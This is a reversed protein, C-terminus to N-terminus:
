PAIMRLRNSLLDPNLDPRVTAASEVTLAAAALGRRLALGLPEGIVLGSLTAAALADGAGNVNVVQAYPAPVTSFEGEDFAIVGGRDATLIGRRAGREVLARALAAPDEPSLGTMAAAEFRNLFLVDIAPLLPILRLAKQESVPGAALLRPRAAALASLTPAALNADMFVAADPATALVSRIIDPTISEFISMDALGIVLAGEGDFIATYTATRGEGDEVVLGIDAGARELYARARRGDEDAGIRTALGVKVGLRALNEAVNRAAGGYGQSLSGINSTQLRAPAERTKGIRDIVCGGICLVSVPSM